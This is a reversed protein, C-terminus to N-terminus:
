AREFLFELRRLLFEAAGVFFQQAHVLLQLAGVLFELGAPLLELGDVLLQLRDVGLQCLVVPLQGAGVAVHLVQELARIDGRQEEVLGVAHPEIRRFEVAQEAHLFPVYAPRDVIQGALHFIRIQGVVGVTHASGKLRDFPFQPDLGRVFGKLRAHPGVTRHVVPNIADDYGEHVDRHALSALPLKFLVRPREAFLVGFKFRKVVRRRDTQAKHIAVQAVQPDVLPEGRDVADRGVAMDALKLFLDHRFGVLGDFRQLAPDEFGSLRDEPVRDACLSRGVGALRPFEKDIEVRHFAAILNDGDAAAHALHRRFLFQLPAHGLTGDTLADRHIRGPKANEFPVHALVARQPFVFPHELDEAPGGCVAGQRELLEPLVDEVGVVLHPKGVGDLCRNLGAMEVDRDPESPVALFPEDLIEGTDVPLLVARVPHDAGDRIDGILGQRLQPIGLM